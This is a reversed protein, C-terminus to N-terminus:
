AKRGRLLFTTMEGKGKIQVTGRKEFKFTDKLREYVIETVQTEGPIGSSEMRSAVNVTDGWLDYIFKTLGIVGAVVPGINIGIRLCFNNQTRANFRDLAAHMDLSMQAIAIARDEQLPLGGVVMYADGITKIKELGHYQSLQDFESFIQNLVEVLETPQQHSAFDTFGVLDAFLVSVDAFSDAIVQSKKQLREAVPKPLINLLLKETQQQALKRATIDSVTGEYYLLREKSDRVARANESIWIIEGDKRYVQSEFGLVANHTEIAEKFEQRRLAKVYLQQEINELSSILEEPSSYGYIKALALNASLYRGSPTTQYIGEVANEVISHYREQTIRLIEETQKRQILTGLQTAVATVLDIIRESASTAKCSYFVLIALVQQELLIPVAFASKLRVKQIHSYLFFLDKDCDIDEIWETRKSIWAKGQLGINPSFTVQLSQERFQLFSSQSGYWGQSCELIKREEDPIWAEGYDWQITICVLQLVAQLASHVDRRHSIAQTTALLLRLEIEAQRRAELNQQLLTNQHVLQLQLQRLRLQNEIRAQVELPEIPKTIYDVGGATFANVKNLPEDLASVFIVPIERTHASAKLKHCVTYGDMDPMNVDLLILDPPTAEVSKLALNGNPAVRVKYGEKTLLQTLLKLNGPNDDVVLIHAKPESSTELNM